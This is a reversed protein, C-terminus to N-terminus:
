SEGPQRGILKGFAAVVTPNVQVNVQPPRDGWRDRDLGGALWRMHGATDRAKSVRASGYESDPDVAELRELGGFAFNDAMARRALAFRERFSPHDREWRYLTMPDPLDDRERFRRLPFGSALVACVRDGVEDTYTTPRGLRTTECEAPLLAVTGM